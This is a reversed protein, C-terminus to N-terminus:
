ERPRSNEARLPGAFETLTRIGQGEGDCRRDHDAQEGIALGERRAGNFLSARRVLYFHSSGHWQFRAIHTVTSPGRM